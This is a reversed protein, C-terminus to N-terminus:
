LVGGSTQLWARVEQAGAQFRDDPCLPRIPQHFVVNHDGDTLAGTVNRNPRPNSALVLADCRITVDTTSKELRVATIRERGVVSLRAPPDIREDAWDAADAIAIVRTRRERCLTAVPRAWPGDGLIVVTDWLRMGTHLLHEAVTAALVGAPRDGDIGLDAATAPRLGGAFVLRRGDIEHFGSPTAVTLAAGDFRMATEGLRLRVDRSVVLDTLRRVTPNSWGASGGTVPIRDIVVVDGHLALEWACGLGSPGAGVVLFPATSM